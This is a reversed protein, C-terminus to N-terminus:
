PKSSASASAALQEYQAALKGSRDADYAYSDYLYHASDVPRPYKQGSGVTNQARAEWLLKESAAKVLYSKEQQRFYIALSQYQEPNHANQMQQRVEAHSYRVENNGSNDNSQALTFASFSLSVIIPILLRAKM